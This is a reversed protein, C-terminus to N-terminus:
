RRVAAYPYEKHGRKIQQRETVSMGGWVGYEITHKLAYDLCEVAVPCGSCFEKLHGINVGKPPFFEETDFGVCKGQTKWKEEAPNFPLM